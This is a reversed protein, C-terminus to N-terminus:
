NEIEIRKIKKVLYVCMPILTVFTIIQITFYCTWSLFQFSINNDHIIIYAILTAIIANFTCAIKYSRSEKPNTITGNKKRNIIYLMIFLFGGLSLYLSIAIAPLLLIGILIYLIIKGFSKM